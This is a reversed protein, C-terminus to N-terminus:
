TVLGEERREKEEEGVVEEKEEEEKAEEEEIGRTAQLKMGDTLIMASKIRSIAGLIQSM